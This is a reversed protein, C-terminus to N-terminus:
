QRGMQKRMEGNGDREVKSLELAVFFPRDRKKRSRSLDLLAGRSQCKQCAITRRPVTTKASSHVTRENM